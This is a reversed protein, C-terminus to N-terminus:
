QSVSGEPRNSHRATPHDLHAIPLQRQKAHQDIQDISAQRHFRGARQRTEATALDKPQM